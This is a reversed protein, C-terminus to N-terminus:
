DMSEILTAIIFDVGKARKIKGVVGVFKNNAYKALKKGAYSGDENLVFYIKKTAGKEVVLVIPQAKEALKKAEAKNVRGDQGLVVANLSAVYGKVPKAKPNSNAAAFIAFASIVIFLAIKKM